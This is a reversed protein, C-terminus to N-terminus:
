GHGYARQLLELPHWVAYPLRHRFQLRCSLCDTVIAAPAAAAIKQMLPRGLRLADAHFQRKYGLSGGMGCCDMPGGVSQLALDPIAKLLNLYPSGMAQERQHCPAYYVMHGNVGGLAGDFRGQAKLAALYEGLDYVRASLAIRGLPDLGAFLGDDCLIAAYLSKKVRIFREGDGGATAGGAAATDPVLLEDAGAQVSEQYAASYCANEKLLVKLLYGCTPCSCVIDYDAEALAGLTALNFRARKLTTARDGELLTPMGCCQQDPVHVAVGNRNLVAVAARAVEPFLYGATCGAFYAVKREGHPHRQLGKRRAWDFFSQAALPPLERQPHIDLLKKLVRNLAPIALLRNVLRPASGGLRAFRQVDALLRVGMPMGLAAVREAKAKVVDNRINFCPCLGCLTCSDALEFLAQRTIPRRAECQADWGQYLRPFLLCSEDMLYRCTDCDACADVIRRM